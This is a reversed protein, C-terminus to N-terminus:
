PGSCMLDTYFFIMWSVTITHFSCNIKGAKDCCQILSLTVFISSDYPQFQIKCLINNGIVTSFPYTIGTRIQRSRTETIIPIIKTGMSFVRIGMSAPTQSARFWSQNIIALGVMSMVSTILLIM